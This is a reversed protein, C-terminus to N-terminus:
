GYEDFAEFLCHIFKKATIEKEEQIKGHLEISIRVNILMWSNYLLESFLFLFLRVNYNKSTTKPLFKNKQVRYGTEIDWRRGYLKFLNHALIELKGCNTAFSKLEGDKGERLVLNFSAPEKGNLEYKEIKEGDAKELRNKIGSTRTAPMIFKWDNDDMTNVVAGSFFGRDMYVRRIDICQEAYQLLDEVLDETNAFKNVPLSKIAYQENGTVVKLTAFKYCHSTGDKPQTEAVMEDNKDGYYPIKTYDIAVDVETDMRGEEEALELIRQGAEEYMEQIEQRDMERIHKLVNQSTPLDKDAKEALIDYAENSCINEMGAFVLLELLEIDEYSTNDSRPFQIRPFLKWKLFNLTKKFGEPRNVSDKNDTTQQFDYHREVDKLKDKEENKQLIYDATHQILELTEQNIKQNIFYNLNQNNPIGNELTYGLDKAENHNRKLRKRVQNRATLGLIHQFILTYGMAVPKYKPSRGRGDAYNRMIKRCLSQLDLEKLFKSPEKQKLEIQKFTEDIEKEIREEVTEAM